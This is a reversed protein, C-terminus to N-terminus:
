VLQHGNLQLARTANFSLSFLIGVMNATGSNSPQPWDLFHFDDVTDGGYVMLLGTRRAIQDLYDV